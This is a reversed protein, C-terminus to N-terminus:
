LLIKFMVFFLVRDRLAAVLEWRSNRFTNLGSALDSSMRTLLEIGDVFGEQEQQVEDVALSCGV